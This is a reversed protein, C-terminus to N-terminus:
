MLSYDFIVHSITWAGNAKDLVVVTTRSIKTTGSCAYDSGVFWAM